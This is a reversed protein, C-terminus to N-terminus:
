RCFCMESGQLGTSNGVHYPFIHMARSSNGVSKNEEKSLFQKLMSALITDGDARSLTTVARVEVSPTVRLVVRQAAWSVAGVVIGAM